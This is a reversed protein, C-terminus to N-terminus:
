RAIVSRSAASRWPNGDRYKKERRRPLNGAAAIIPFATGGSKVRSCALETIRNRRSLTGPDRLAYIQASDSIQQNVTKGVPLGGGDTRQPSANEYNGSGPRTFGLYHRATNRPPDADIIYWLTTDNCEREGLTGRLLHLKSDAGPVFPNGGLSLFHVKASHIHPCNVSETQGFKALIPRVFIVVIVYQILTGSGCQDKSTEVCQESQLGQSLGSSPPLKHSELVEDPGVVLEM